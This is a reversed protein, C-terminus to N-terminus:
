FVKCYMNEDLIKSMRENKDMGGMKKVESLAMEKKIDIFICKRFNIWIAAM